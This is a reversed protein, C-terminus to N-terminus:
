LTARTSCHFKTEPAFLTIHKRGIIDLKHYV